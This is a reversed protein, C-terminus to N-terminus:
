ALAVCEIEVGNGFSLQMGVVTCAPPNEPFFKPMVRYFADSELMNAM